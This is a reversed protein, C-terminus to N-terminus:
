VRCWGQAKRLDITRQEVESQLKEKEQELADLNVREEFALPKSM